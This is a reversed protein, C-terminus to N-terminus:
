KSYEPQILRQHRRVMEILRAWDALVMALILVDLWLPQVFAVVLIAFSATAASAAGVTHDRKLSAKMEDSGTMWQQLVSNYIETLFGIASFAAVSVGWRFTQGATAAIIPLASWALLLLVSRGLRFPWPLLLIVWWYRVACALALAFIVGARLPSANGTTVQAILLYLTAFFGVVVVMLQGHKNLEDNM